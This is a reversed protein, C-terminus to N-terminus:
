RAASKKRGRTFENWNGSPVRARARAPHRYLYIWAPGYPTPIRQRDYERPYTELRDLRKLERPGVQYVEGTIATGGGLIVAPYPGLSLMRYSAETTHPGLFRAGKLCAHNYHGRRLSGYVFVLQRTDNPM